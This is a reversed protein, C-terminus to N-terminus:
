LYVRPIVRPEIEEVEETGEIGETEGLERSGVM